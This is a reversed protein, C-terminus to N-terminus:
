VKPLIQAVLASVARNPLSSYGLLAHLFEVPDAYGLASMMQDLSGSKRINALM